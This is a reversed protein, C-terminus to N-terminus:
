RIRYAKGKWVVLVEGSLQQAISRIKSDLEEFTDSRRSVTTVTMSSKFKLDVWVNGVRRFKRGGVSIPEGPESEETQDSKRPATKAAEKRPGGLTSVQGLQRNNIPMQEQKNERAAPQNAQTSSRDEDRARAVDATGERDRSVKYREVTENRRPGGHVNGVNQQQVQAQAVQAQQERQRTDVRYEGPPSPAYSPSAEARPAKMARDALTVPAEAVAGDKAPKPASPTELVPSEYGKKDLNSSPTPQVNATAERATSESNVIPAASESAPSSQATAQTQAPENRAILSSNPNQVNRRWVVYTVGVVAILVLASAAYRLAPPSLFASFRQWWSPGALSETAPVEGIAPAGSAVVLQSAITRCDDCDALHSIYNARTAAPLSGEAFANLEDADLHETPVTTQRAGKAFRRMLVDMQTDNPM